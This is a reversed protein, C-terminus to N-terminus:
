KKGSLIQSVPRKHARNYRLLKFLSSDRSIKNIGEACSLSMSFGMKQIEEEAEGCLFGFPYTFCNAQKGTNEYILNRMKRVDETFIKQYHASDEGRMKACGNRGDAIKHMDYTHNQIETHTSDSLKKVDEWNLYAYSLCRDKNETYEDTYTGVISVVAAMDYKELLPVAYELYSLHGDDFTLMIPKEPLPEGEKQYRILADATITTYGNKKLYKLDDEFENPSIVFKGQKSKEKLIHHYMIIPLSYESKKADEALCCVAAGAYFIGMLLTACLVFILLCILSQKMFVM